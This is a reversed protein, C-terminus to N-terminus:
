SSSDGKTSPLPSLGLLPQLFSAMELWLKQPSGHAPLRTVQTKVGAAILKAAYSEAEDRLADDQATVILAPPLGALRTSLGPAAYPHLRDSAHPLYRKYAETCRAAMEGATRMSCSSLTPDLMPAILVQAAIPPRGRDRAMMAVVAALNGGAEDGIVAVRRTDWHGQAANGCAWVLAAYADEAAAPFPQETALSYAPAVVAVGLRVALRRASLDAEDLDGTMFHGSHFYMALPLPHTVAPRQIRVRL